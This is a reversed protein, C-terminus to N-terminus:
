VAVRNNVANLFVAPMQHFLTIIEIPINKTKLLFIASKLPIDLHQV